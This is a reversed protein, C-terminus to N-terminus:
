VSYDLASAFITTADLCNFTIVWYRSDSWTPETGGPWKIDSSWTPTHNSTTRDLVMMSTKGAALNTGSFATGATMTMHTLPKNLDFTETTAAANTATVVPHLNVYTGSVAKNFDFTDTSATYILTASAGDITLGAGNAAAADAAGSAITINLDDIDMTTSNITTTTGNVTLNGPIVVNGSADENVLKWWSGSHAFYGAGTAHVHAFMGHYSSASPLDALTSYVNSFTIKNSGLDIDGTFTAGSLEAYNQGQAQVAAVQTNGEATVAAVQTNGEATVAALQTAGEATIASIKTDGTEIIDSVTATVNLAELTKGLFVLDKADTTSAALSRAKTDIATILTNFNSNQVAM